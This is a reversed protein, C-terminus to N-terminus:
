NKPRVYLGGIVLDRDPSSELRIDAGNCRGKFSADKIEFEAMKWGGSGTMRFGGLEKFAGPNAPIVKVTEDTSDYRVKVISRFDDRYIISVTLPDGPQAAGDPLRAYIYRGKFKVEPRQSARVKYADRGDITTL